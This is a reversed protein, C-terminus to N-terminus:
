READGPLRASLVNHVHVHGGAPIDRIAVGIVEGYKLVHGDLPIAALAFKHGMPIADTLTVRATGLDIPQCRRTSWAPLVMAPLRDVLRRLISRKVGYDVVAIRVDGPGLDTDMLHAVGLSATVALLGADSAVPRGVIAVRLREAFGGLGEQGTHPLIM